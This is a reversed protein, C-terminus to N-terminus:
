LVSGVIRDLDKSANKTKRDPGNVLVIEVIYYLLEDLELSWINASM